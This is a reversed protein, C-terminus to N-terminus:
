FPSDFMESTQANKDAFTPQMNRIKYVLHTVHCKRIIPIPKERWTLHTKLRIREIKVLWVLM